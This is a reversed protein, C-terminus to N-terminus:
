IKSSPAKAKDHGAQRPMEKNILLLNGSRVSDDRVLEPIAQKQHRIVM